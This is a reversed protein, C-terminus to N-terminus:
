QSKEPDAIGPEYIILDDANKSWADLLPQVIRWSLLVEQSTSFLTRDGRIADVLVREYANPHGSDGFNNQYSFDMTTTQTEYSFGPKKTILELEIGENPQIRFRLRNTTSTEHGHFAVDVEAKRENLAKGTLLKIPVDHWRPNNIFLTIEAYTETASDPNNVEERYGKYQGRKARQKVQDIPVPEVQELVAQKKAHIQQSSFEDPQDMTVIGLIQLLHNQIIDRLAGLPDYFAARGAIGQDERQSIEIGAIHQNNWLSEFIPNKFRFTLINQVTEKAVYHDIRFIQEEKFVKVTENILEQASQLDYGFPKEVLLRTDARDHRCSKNLEAEGMLRVIPAYAKPPVSLYYLRNMCVGQNTEIADLKEHLARYAAQDELDMQFMDTRERIEKMVAPDCTKDVENICLEVQEFLEDVSVDRRSIGLIVTQSNLLGDKVLHYLAPLLYRQSLDGTIGFIVLIAPELNTSKDSM